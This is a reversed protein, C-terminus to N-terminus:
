KSGYASVDSMNPTEFGTDQLPVSGLVTDAAAVPADNTGTVTITMSQQVAANQGDVVEYNVTILKSDGVGLYQFAVDAPDVTITNGSVTVGATLGTVNQVGLTATEGTDVDSAGALM